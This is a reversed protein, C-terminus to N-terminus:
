RLIELIRHFICFTNHKGKHLIRYLIQFFLFILIFVLNFIQLLLTFAIKNYPQSVQFTVLEIVCFSYDKIFRQRRLINFTRHVSTILLIISHSVVPSVGTSGWILFRFHFHIPCV